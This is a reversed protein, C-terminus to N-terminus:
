QPPTPERPDAGPLPQPGYRALPKLSQRYLWRMGWSIAAVIILLVVIFRWPAPLATIVRVIVVVLGLAHM